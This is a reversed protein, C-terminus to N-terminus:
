SKGGQREMADVMEWMHATYISFVEHEAPIALPGHCREFVTVFGRDTIM